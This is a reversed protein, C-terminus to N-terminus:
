KGQRRLEALEEDRRARDRAVDDWFEPIRRVFGLAEQTNGRFRDYLPRVLGYLAPGVQAAFFAYNKADTILSM